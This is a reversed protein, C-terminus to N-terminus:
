PNKYGNYWSGTYNVDTSIGDNGNGSYDNANGNLPWWGVLNQINIPVGGIGEQYLVNLENASLASNYLQVNSIMGSYANGDCQAYQTGISVGLKSSYSNSNSVNGTMNDFQFFYDPYNVSVAIFHWENNLASQSSFLLSSTATGSGCGSNSCTDASSCRHLVLSSDGTFGFGQYSNLGIIPLTWSHSWDQTSSPKVWMVITFPFNTGSIGSGESVIVSDSDYSSSSPFGGNFVGVYQPIQNNCTGEINIDTTTNAGFPRVVHCSGPSAKPTFTLPNFVGLFSLASLVVAIILISWGYTMLYEMASQSYVKMPDRFFM